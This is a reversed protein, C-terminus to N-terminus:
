TKLTFYLMVSMKGFVISLLFGLKRHYFILFFLIPFFM